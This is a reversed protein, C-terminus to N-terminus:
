DIVHIKEKKTTMKRFKSTDSLIDELQQNYYTRDLLVIGTGKDPRCLIVSENDRLRKVAEVHQKSLFHHTEPRYNVYQYCTNVLTSKFHESAMPSTPCLDNTQSCLNEFQVELDIRNTKRSLCCFKPGLSLVELLTKDLHISSFNKVYREPETPFSVNPQNSHIDKQLTNWKHQARHSAVEEAYSLFDDRELDSLQNTVSYYQQKLRDLEQMRQVVTDRQSILYQHLNYQTPKIGQRRLSKWFQKPYQRKGSCDDLFRFSTTAEELKARFKIYKNLGSLVPPDKSQKLRAFIGPSSM